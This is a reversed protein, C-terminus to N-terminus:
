RHADALGEAGLQHARVHVRGLHVIIAELLHLVREGFLVQLLVFELPLALDVVAQDGHPELQDGVAIQFAHLLATGALLQGEFGAHDIPLVVDLDTPIQFLRVTVQHDQPRQAEAALAVALNARDALAHGTRAALVGPDDLVQGLFALRLPVRDEDADVAARLREPRQM